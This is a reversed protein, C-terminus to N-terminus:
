HYNLISPLYISLTVHFSMNDYTFSVRGVPVQEGEVLFSSPIILSKHVGKYETLTVTGNSFSYEFDDLGPTVRYEAPVPTPTSTTVAQQTSTAQGTKENSKGSNGGTCKSLLFVLVVFILVYTLCGSNGSSTTTFTYGCNQCVGVTRYDYNRSGSSLGAPFIWSSKVGTRRYRRSYTAGERERHFKINNSGCKPCAM